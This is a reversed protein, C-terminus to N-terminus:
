DVATFSNTVFLICYYGTIWPTEVAMLATSLTITM